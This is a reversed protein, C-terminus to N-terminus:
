LEGKFAKSLISKKLEELDVLKQKYIKELKKTEQSFENFKKVLKEQEKTSTPYSLKINRILPMNLGRRDNGTDGTIKRIENYRANLNHYIYEPLIRNIDKPYISVLSQNCTAKTRLMAVTGRTKGQGNLAIIVSNVPLYRVNSNELGLETIRGDCDFIEKMKVDGSVLWKINGNKFYEIKSRSPTGGTMLDCLDGIKKEEWGDKSNKFFGQLCSEFLEKSNQMNKEAADKIQAVKEFVDDLKNVIRKQESLSPISIKIQKLTSGSVEKFTTGSGLSNLYDTNSILFYYLYKNLIESKCIFSRCGQNTAMEVTNIFVYGIPARSSLIVSGAPLLKASSNKLGDLSIKRETESIEFGDLKGLDKPTAWCLNGDWYKKVSTSPTGGGVVECIDGLRKLELNNKM